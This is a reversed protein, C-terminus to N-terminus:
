TNIFKDRESFFLHFNASSIYFIQSPSFILESCLAKIVIVFRRTRKACPSACLIEKKNEDIMRPSNKNNLLQCSM